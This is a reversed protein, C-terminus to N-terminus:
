SKAGITMRRIPSGAGKSAASKKLDKQLKRLLLLITKDDLSLLVWELRGTASINNLKRKLQNAVPGLEAGMEKEEDSLMKNIRKLSASAGPVKALCKMAVELAHYLRGEMMDPEDAYPETKMTHLVRAALTKSTEKSAM